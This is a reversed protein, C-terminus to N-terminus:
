MRALSGRSCTCSFITTHGASSAEAEQLATLLSALNALQQKANGTLEQSSLQAATTM